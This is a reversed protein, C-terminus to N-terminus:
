LLIIIFDKLNIDIVMLFLAWQNNLKQNFIMVDSESQYNDFRASTLFKVHRVQRRLTMSPASVDSICHLVDRSRSGLPASTTRLRLTQLGYAYQINERKCMMRTGIIRGYMIYFLVFLFVFCVALFSVRGSSRQGAGTGSINRDAVRMRM